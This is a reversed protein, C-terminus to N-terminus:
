LAAVLIIMAIAYIIGFLIILRITFAWKDKNDKAM